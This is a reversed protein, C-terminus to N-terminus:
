FISYFMILSVTFLPVLRLLCVRCTDPTFHLDSLVHLKMADLHLFNILPPTCTFVASLCVYICDSLFALAQKPEGLNIYNVNFSVQHSATPFSNFFHMKPTIPKGPYCLKFLHHHREILTSLYEASSEAIVTATCYKTIDLLLLFCEWHSDGYSVKDGILIPLITTFLWM